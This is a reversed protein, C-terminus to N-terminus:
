TQGVFWYLQEDAQVSGNTIVIAPRKAPGSRTAWVRGSITAGSRSTFLVPQVIGYGKAEWDYLRADGACGDEGSACLHGTFNREPDSAQIALAAARNQLEGRAPPGPVRAHQLDDPARRDQLFEAGGRHSGFAQAVQAGGL